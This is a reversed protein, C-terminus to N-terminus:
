RIAGGVSEIVITVPGDNVLEVEMHAGFSGMEVSVGHTRLTDAVADILPVAHEPQAADTFSPRRGKRVDALLTFQSVLLVAGGVDKLDHNMRGADDPFVRLGAIKTAVAVADDGTDEAAVGILVLFGSGISAVDSGDVRVSAASV